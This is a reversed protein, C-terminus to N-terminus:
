HRPIILATHGKPPNFNEILVNDTLNTATHFIESSGSLEGGIAWIDTDYRVAAFRFLDRDIDFNLNLSLPPLSYRFRKKLYLMKKLWSM